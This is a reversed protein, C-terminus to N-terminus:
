GKRSMHFRRVRERIIDNAIITAQHEVESHYEDGDLPDPCYGLRIAFAGYEALMVKILRARENMAYVNTTMDCAGDEM